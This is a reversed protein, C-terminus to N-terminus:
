MKYVIIETKGNRIELCLIYGGAEFRIAMDKTINNTFILDLADSYKKVGFKENENKVWGINHTCQKLDIRLFPFPVWNCSCLSSIRFDTSASLRATRSSM